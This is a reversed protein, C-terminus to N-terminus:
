TDFRSIKFNYNIKEKCNKLEIESTCWAIKLM